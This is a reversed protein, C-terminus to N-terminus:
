YLGRCLSKKVRLAVVYYKKLIIYRRCVYFYQTPANYTFIDSHLPKNQTMFLGIKDMKAKKPSLILGQMTINQSIFGSCVLIKVYLGGVYKFNLYIHWQPSRCVQFFRFFHINQINFENKAWFSCKQCRQVGQM